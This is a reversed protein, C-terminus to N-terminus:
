DELEQEDCFVVQQQVEAEIKDTFLRYRKGLLEACKIADKASIKKRVVRAESCGDGIGEVVVVDEELEMRAGKTLMKMVETADAISKDTIEKLLEDKYKKVDVNTLLRNGASKAVNDNKVSKYVSKYARTVNLEPDKVLEEVFRKQKDTIM